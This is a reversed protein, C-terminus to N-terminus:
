DHGTVLSFDEPVLVDGGALIVAQHIANKLQRINGPWPQAVLCALAAPSFSVQRNYAVNYDALFKAALEPIDERRNRLPPLVVTIVALRYYLDNRFKGAKVASELDANTAAVVRFNSTVEEEAGLPFFRKEQLARLLKAQLELPLEGIEDLFLTGGHARELHGKRDQNAGTFAGKTHGFLESELLNGPLAACNVAVFEGSRGSHKHIARAALEKGTGSEGALLIDAGSPAAQQIIKYVREMVSSRGVMEDLGSREMLQQRLLSVQNSLQWERSARQVLLLVEDLDFPKALYHYAGRAMTEVALRLNGHATLMIVRCSPSEALLKSLVETGDMGPMRIDLLVVQPCFERAAELGKLGDAAVRVDWGEDQLTDSLVTRISAEDDIVLCRLKM